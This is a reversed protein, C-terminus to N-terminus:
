AKITVCVHKYRLYRDARNLNRQLPLPVRVTHNGNLEYNSNASCEIEECVNKLQVVLWFMFVVGLITGIISLIPVFKEPDKKM